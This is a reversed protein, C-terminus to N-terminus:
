KILKTIAVELKEPTPFLSTSYYWWDDPDTAFAVTATSGDTGFQLPLTLGKTFFAQVITSSFRTNADDLLVFTSKETTVM